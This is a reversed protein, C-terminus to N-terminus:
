TGCGAQGPGSAARGPREEGRWRAVPEGRRLPTSAHRCLALFRRHGWRWQDTVSLALDAAIRHLAPTGLRAWPFPPGERGHGDELRASCREEVDDPDAEVLLTGTPATLQICRYLLTHPDGGIGINGDILLVTQWDGEAPLQDFVSRCLAIGGLVTTQAVARPALDVGLAFVGRGLLARCLRGPGCGADLVPNVCRALVTEDARTPRGYWRHVPVQIRRRGALRLYVPAPGARRALAYPDAGDCSSEEDTTM